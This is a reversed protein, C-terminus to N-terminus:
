IMSEPRVQNYNGKSTAAVLRGRNKSASNATRRIGFRNEGGRAAAEALAAQGTSRFGARLLWALFTRAEASM